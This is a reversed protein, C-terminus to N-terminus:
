EVLWGEYHLSHPDTDNPSYETWSQLVTLRYGYWPRFAKALADLKSQMRSTMLRADATVFRINRNANTVLETIYLRSNRTIRLRIPRCQDTEGRSPYSQNVRFVSPVPQRTYLYNGSNGTRQAGVFMPFLLCAVVLELHFPMETAECHETKWM